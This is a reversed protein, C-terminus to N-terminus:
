EKNHLDPNIITQNPPIEFMKEIDDVTSEQVIIQTANSIKKVASLQKQTVDPVVYGHLKMSFTSKVVREGSAPLLTDTAISNITARFKFRQPDGWYSDSAYNIAEVLGNMQEVYYTSIIFDYNLTMYDPIVVAYYDKKPVRNNLINFNDYENKASYKKEFLQVNNPFNADLKNSLNRVKEISTRKFTILPMMIKGKKDQLYGKKQVQVWREPSGYYLPVKLVAGNQMVTPKIVENIYYMVAEDLDKLGVSFPKTTDGRFSIQNGRNKSPPYSTDNPNGTPSFGPAGSPPVYPTQQSISIQRQTKPIPKKGINAM